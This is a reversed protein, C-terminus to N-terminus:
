VYPAQNYVWGKSNYEDAYQYKTQMKARQKIFVRGANLLLAMFLGGLVAVLMGTLTGAFAIGLGITFSVDVINAHRFIRAWGTLRALTLLFAFVSVIAMVIILFM